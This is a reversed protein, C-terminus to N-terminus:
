DDLLHVIRDNIHESLLEVTQRLSRDITYGEGWRTLLYQVFALYGNVSAVRYIDRVANHGAPCDTRHTITFGTLAGEQRRWSVVGEYINIEEGCAACVFRGM